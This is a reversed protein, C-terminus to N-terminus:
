ESFLRAAFFRHRSDEVALNFTASGSFGALREVPQWESLPRSPDQSTLLELALAPEGEVTVLCRGNEFRPQGLRLPREPVALLRVRDLDWYGGQWESSVTSLFRLGIPRGAWPDTNRVVPTRVSFDRLLKPVGWLGTENTVVSRAVPRAQGTPDEYFLALELTAGAAMNGGGGLIGVTLEYAYGPTYVPPPGEPAPDDALVQYFGVEPVAFLWAAQLGDCNQIHDASSPPTNRFIGVLQDWLFGGGEEYWAPKPMKRWAEVVTSVFATVPAEFSANPVAIPQARPTGTLCSATLWLTLVPVTCRARRHFGRSPARGTSRAGFSLNESM